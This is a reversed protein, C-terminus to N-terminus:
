FDRLNLFPASNPLSVYMMQSIVLSIFSFAFASKLIIILLCFLCFPELIRGQPMGSVVPMFDSTIDNVQVCHIRDTLYAKFWLLLEGVIGLSKLKALFLKHSVTDFTKRIDLYTVNVSTKYDRFYLLNNIFLLMQQVASHKALIWVSTNFHFKVFITIKKTFLGKLYKLCLLYCLVQTIIITLNNM